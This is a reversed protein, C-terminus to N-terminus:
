GKTNTVCGQHTRALQNQVKVITKKTCINQQFSINYNCSFFAGTHSRCVHHVTFIHRYLSPNAHSLDNKRKKEKGRMNM